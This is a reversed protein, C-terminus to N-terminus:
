LSNLPPASSAELGSLRKKWLTKAAARYPISRNSRVTVAKSKRDLKWAARARGDVVVTPLSWVAVRSRYLRAKFKPDVISESHPASMVLLQDFSPLLRAGKIPRTSQLSRLDAALLLRNVGGVTAETLQPEMLRLARGAEAPTVGWGRAVEAKNAPGYAALFRRFVEVLAEHTDYHKWKGIWQDPRAFTVSRGSRPGFCLLGRFAAPKLLSGWGSRLHDRLHKKRTIRVVADALEERRLVQGDLATPIADLVAEVDAMELQLYELFSPENYMDATGLAACYLPLDDDALVHLTGRMSWTKILTHEHNIAATVQDATLASTRAGLALSVTSLIQAHAGCMARVIKVMRSAPVRRALHGRRM